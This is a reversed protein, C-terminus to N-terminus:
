LDHTRIGSRDGGNKKELELIWKKEKFNKESYGNRKKSTRRETTEIM